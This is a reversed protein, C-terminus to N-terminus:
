FKGHAGNEVATVTIALTDTLINGRPKQITEKWAMFDRNLNKM